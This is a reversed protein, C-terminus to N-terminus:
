LTRVSSELSFKFRKLLMTKVYQYEGAQEEPERAILHAIGTPLVGTLQTVQKEKAIKFINAQLKFLELFLSKDDGQVDFKPM